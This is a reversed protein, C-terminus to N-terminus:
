HIKMKELYGRWLKKATRPAQRIQWDLFGAIIHAIIDMFCELLYLAGIAMFPLAAIFCSILILISLIAYM